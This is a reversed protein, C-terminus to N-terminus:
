PKAPLSKVAQDLAVPGHPATAAPLADDIASRITKILHPELWVLLLGLVILGIGGVFGDLMTKVAWLAVKAGAPLASTGFAQAVDAVVRKRRYGELTVLGESRLNVLDRESCEDWLHKNGDEDLPQGPARGREEALWCHQVYRGLEVLWEVEETNQYSALFRDRIAPYAVKAQEAATPRHQPKKPGIL